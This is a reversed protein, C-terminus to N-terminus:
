DAVPRILFARYRHSDYDFTTMINNGKVLVWGYINAPFNYEGLSSVGYYSNNNPLPMFITKTNDTKDTLVFGDIGSDNYNAVYVYNVSNMLGVVESSTPMRWNGGWITNAADDSQELTVLEDTSNYKTYGVGETFYKYNALDFTRVSGIEEQTFGETEGWAFSLGYDTESNAGINMTAWKKGGIEVYEHGAYPDVYPNYHVCNNDECYSVNPKLMDGSQEYTQYEAHTEFLKLYDGM